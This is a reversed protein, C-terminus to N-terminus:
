DSDYIFDLMNFILLENKNKPVTFEALRGYLNTIPLLKEVQHYKDRDVYDDILIKVGPKSFLVSAYFCSLRFRGDILVIDPSIHKSKQILWPKYIYNKWNKIHSESKPRGWATLEGVDIYCPTFKMFNEKNIEGEIKKLWEASTDVSIVSHINPSNIAAITSGGSGYELYAGGINFLELLRKQSVQPM